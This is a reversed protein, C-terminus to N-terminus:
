SLEIYQMVHNLISNLSDKALTTRETMNLVNTKPGAMKSYMNDIIFQFDSNVPKKHFIPFGLYKGFNAITQISLSNSKSEM